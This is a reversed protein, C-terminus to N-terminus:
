SGRQRKETGCCSCGARRARGRDQAASNRQGGGCAPVTAPGLGAGDQGVAGPHCAPGLRPDVPQRGEHGRTAHRRPQLESLPRPGPQPKGAPCIGPRHGSGGASGSRPGDDAALLKSDPSFAFAARIGIQPGERWSGVAWLRLGGGTTALWKGDPSFGVRSGSDVPLEKELEGTRAEWIKVATGNHSGTVVWRGDHSVAIYRADDHPGIPMPQDPRDAHLVRGGQFQSVAIVRGDGSSAIHCIAVRCPCSTRRGSGCCDRRRKIPKSRGVNFVPLGM